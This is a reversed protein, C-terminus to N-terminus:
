PLGSSIPTSLRVLMESVLPSFLMGVFFATAVWIAVKILNM